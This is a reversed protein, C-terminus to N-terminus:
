RNANVIKIVYSQIQNLEERDLGARFTGITWIGMFGLSWFLLMLWSKTKHYLSAFAVVPIVFLNAILAPEIAKQWLNFVRIKMLSLSYSFLIVMVTAEVIASAVMVGQLGLVKALIFSLGLNCVGGVISAISLFRVAGHAVLALANVHNIVTSIAFTSLAMTMMDGAYLEEGVWVTVLTRNLIILGLGLGLSLILGYKILKFYAIEIQKTKEKAYLENFAPAANDTIKWILAVLIFTPIQTTYYCSVSIGGYLYGIVLNDTYFTLRGGIIVFLYGIGFGLMESFLQRNPVGWGFMEDPYLRRYQQRQLSFTVIESIVGALMLGILDFGLIVLGLSLVLRLANGVLSIINAIALNQTAILAGGYVALPTRFVSWVGLIRLGMRAQSEVPGSLSFIKGVYTSIVFAFIAVLTNSVLYFTRGATFIEGFREKQDDFGFAQAMYRSLAVGFGLDVLALYGIVQILVAYAGLTEQGAHKLVLPALFAQLGIQVCFQLFSTLTGSIARSTRSNM